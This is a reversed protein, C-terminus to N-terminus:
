KHDNNDLDSERHSSHSAKPTPATSSLPQPKKNSDNDKGDDHVKTNNTPHRIIDDGATSSSYTGCIIDCEKILGIAIVAFIFFSM